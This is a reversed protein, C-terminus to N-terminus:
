PRGSPPPWPQARGDPSPPPRAWHIRPGQRRATPVGRHERDGPRLPGTRRFRTGPLNRPESRPALLGRRLGPASFRSVGLPGRDNMTTRGNRRPGDPGRPTAPEPGRAPRGWGGKTARPPALDKPSANRP